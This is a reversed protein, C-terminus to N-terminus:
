ANLARAKALWDGLANVIDAQSFSCSEESFLASSELQTLIRELVEHYRPPLAPQHDKAATRWQQVLQTLPLSGQKFADLTAPLPSLQDPM